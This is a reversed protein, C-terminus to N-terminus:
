VTFHWNKDVKDFAEVKSAQEDLKVDKLRGTRPTVLYCLTIIHENRVFDGSVFHGKGFITSYAGIVKEMKVDMGTEKKAIRLAERDPKGGRLIRGGPFWFKGKVPWKTRKFLWLKKGQHVVLDVCCIPVSELCTRYVPDDLRSTSAKKVLM